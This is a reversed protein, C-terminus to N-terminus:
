LLYSTFFLKVTSGDWTVLIGLSRFFGVIANIILWLNRLISKKKEETESNEFIITKDGTQVNKAQVDGIIVHSNKIHISQDSKSDANGVNSHEAKEQPKKQEQLEYLHPKVNNFARQLRETPWEYQKLYYFDDCAFYKDKYTGRYYIKLEDEHVKHDHVYCLIAYDCLLSEEPTPKRRNGKEDLIWLM